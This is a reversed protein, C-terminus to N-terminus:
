KQHAESLEIEPLVESYIIEADEGVDERVMALAQETTSAEKYSRKMKVWGKGQILTRTFGLRAVEILHFRDDPNLPEETQKATVAIIEFIRM